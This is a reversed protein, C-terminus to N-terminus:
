SLVLASIGGCAKRLGALLEKKPNALNSETVSQRIPTVQLNNTVNKPQEAVALVRPRRWGPKGRRPSGRATRSQLWHVATSM